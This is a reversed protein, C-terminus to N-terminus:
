HPFTEVLFSGCGRRGANRSASSCKGAAHVTGLSPAYAATPARYLRLPAIISGVAGYSTNESVRERECGRGRETERVCVQDLSRAVRLTSLFLRRRLNLAASRDFRTRRRRLFGSRVRTQKTSDALCAQKTRAFGSRTDLGGTGRYAAATRGETIPYFALLSLPLCAHASPFCVELSHQSPARAHYLACCWCSAYM